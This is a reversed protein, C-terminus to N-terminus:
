LQARGRSLRRPLLRGALTDVFYPERGRVPASLLCRRIRGSTSVVLACAVPLGAGWAPLLRTGPLGVRRPRM